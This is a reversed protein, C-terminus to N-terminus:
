NKNSQNNGPIIGDPQLKAKFYAAGRLNDHERDEVPECSQMDMNEMNNHLVKKIFSYNYSNCAIGLKCAAALREKGAKNAFQLIGSASRYLQEPYAKTEFLRVIYEKVVPNIKEAWSTFKEASWEAVYQHASPLHEKITSYKYPKNDRRHVAIREGSYHIEVRTAGAAIRVTKGTYRYPVSYYHKDKGYLVHSNKMVKAAAYDRLEYRNSPLPSLEQKEYQEFLMRRSHDRGQFLMNNHEELYIRITQNLETLSFFTQGDLRTYIRTYLISVHREVLSKDRPSLARAPMVSTAYHTAMGLFDDNLTPDYRSSKTVASKLNDTVLVKPVGGYYHLANEVSHIFDTKQQSHSAQAYTYQSGGLVCVFFECEIIEGTHRKVYHVKKGAYDIFLKDGYKHEFHMVVDKSECYRSYHYCYQSYGYGSPNAKRYREWLLQRTYGPEKLLKDMDPFYAKLVAMRSLPASEELEKGSAAQLASVPLNPIDSPNSLSDREMSQPANLLSEDSHVLISDFKKYYEKVTNKSISLNRAITKFGKGQALQIKIQEVKDMSIPERAM